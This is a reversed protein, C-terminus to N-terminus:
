MQADVKHARRYESPLVGYAERFARGFHTMDSFGWGYAIESVTRHQQLPAELATRCRALRRSRILRTLSTGQQALVRNAYRVGVGAAVAVTSADLDPDSLRLDIAIQIKRFTLLKSCSLNVTGSVMLGAFAMAVLDLTQDRAMAEATAGMRGAYDPLLSVFNSTLGCEPLDPTLLRAVMEGTRGLRAELHRRQFKLVLLKSGISFRARYPLMPDLLTMSGPKLDVERAGQEIALTGAVQRCLLLDDSAAREVHRQTRRASMASNEFRVLGIDALRGVEIEAHFVPRCQVESDHEVLSKCAVDHWYSFRERPHVDQTSFLRDM